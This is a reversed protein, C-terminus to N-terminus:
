ACSGGVYKLMVSICTHYTKKITKTNVAATGLPNLDYKIFNTIRIFLWPLENPVKFLITLGTLYPIPSKEDKANVMVKLKMKNEKCSIVYMFICVCMIRVGVYVCVRDRVFPTMKNEKCSIVYMYVCVCM